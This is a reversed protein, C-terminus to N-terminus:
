DSFDTLSWGKWSYSRNKRKGLLSAKIKTFGNFVQKPTGDFLDPHERIFHMLNQCEYVKGTPSQIAWHKANIHREGSHEAYFKEKGEQWRNVSDTYVGSAHLQRRHEASCELSCCVNDNAPPAKFRKHCIPCVRYHQRHASCCQRSCFKKNKSPLPNGCVICFNEM